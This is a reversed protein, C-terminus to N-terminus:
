RSFVNLSLCCHQFVTLQPRDVSHKSTYDKMELTKGRQQADDFAKEHKRASAYSSRKNEFVFCILFFNHVYFEPIRSSRWGRTGSLFQFIEREGVM